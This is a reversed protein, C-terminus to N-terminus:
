NRRPNIQEKLEAAGNLTAKSTKIFLCILMAIAFGAASLLGPKMDGGASGAVMGVLTPGGSCGLDGALALLAFMATGGTRLDAAAKSLTGPWMIGVSFGCLGCGLLNVVPSSPLVVLLYSAVCLAASLQMVRTLQMRQGFKGYLARSLGMLAAFSMPGMLDGIAKTVGLGQEAFASAWQSVSQESAGACLMMVFLLWFAKSSFLERMSMGKENEALLPALPTFIFIVSNCLPLVAWILALLRWNEIGALRFFLTSVLVVGVHGWCYFSHLLSMATEKNDTPCSEMIPSVLVEILGGGLAYVVVSLLIGTFPDMVGPLVTLLLLGAAAFLQALVISVRYGIKDVFRASLMDVLLQVGFNVTVLLTIQSLPISYSQQFTIFLLPVFNNVIAHAIYSMFCARMTTKFNLKM